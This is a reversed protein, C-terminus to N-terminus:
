RRALLKQIPWRVKKKLTWESRWKVKAEHQMKLALKEMEVRIENLEKDIKAKNKQQRDGRRGRKHGETAM